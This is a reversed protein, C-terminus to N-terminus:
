VKRWDELYGKLQIATERNYQAARLGKPGDHKAGRFFNSCSATRRLCSQATTAAAATLAAAPTCTERLEDGVSISRM